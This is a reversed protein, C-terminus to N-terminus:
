VDNLKKIIRAPNGAAVMGGPVDKSVVAGAGIVADRGITVGKTIISRAGVFAGACIRIPAVGIKKPDHRDAFALPHADNDMILVGSRILVDDEIVISQRAVISFGSM